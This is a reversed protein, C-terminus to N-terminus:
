PIPVDYDCYQVGSGSIDKDPADITADMLMMDKFGLCVM